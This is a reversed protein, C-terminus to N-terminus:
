VIAFPARTRARAHGGFSMAEGDAPVWVKSALGEAEMRSTLAARTTPCHDLAEVHNLVVRGPARRTLEVLEKKFLSDEPRATGSDEMLQSLRTEGDHDVFDDLSKEKLLWPIWM